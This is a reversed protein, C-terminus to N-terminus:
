RCLALSSLHKKVVLYSNSVSRLVSWYRAGGRWKGAVKGALRRDKIIWRELIRIGCSLNIRPNHLMEAKTIGCGYSNASEQSIQLLGRSIVWNGHSDKFDEQYKTEPRYGSERKAVISILQAYFEIKQSHNFSRFKPCFENIDEPLVSLMPSVDLLSVVHDTWEQQPWDLKLKDQGVSISSCSSVVFLFCLISKM